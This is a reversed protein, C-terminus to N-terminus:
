GPPGKTDFSFMEAMEDAPVLGRPRAPLGPTPEVAGATVACSVLMCAGLTWRTVRRRMEAEVRPRAHLRRALSVGRGAGGRQLQLRLCTPASITTSLAIM